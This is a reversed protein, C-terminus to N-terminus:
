YVPVLWGAHGPSEGRVAALYRHRLERGIRGPCGDGVARGDVSTVPAVETWTGCLLLEDCVYLESRDVSRELVPVGLDDTLLRLLLARTVGELIDDTVPPTICAGDRLLLLNEASAESVHGDTTLLIAEDCGADLAELHALCSNVYAGAVKARVPMAADPVRRWSSTVCRLGAGEYADQGDQGPMPVLCVALSAGGARYDVDLDQSAAFLIPRVYVDERLQSRRLLEVTIAVLEDADESLPLRMIRASRAFRTYHARAAVLNLQGAAESWYARIGEFVATGYHLAHTLLGIRADEPRLIRGDLYTWLGAM